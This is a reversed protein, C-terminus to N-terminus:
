FGPAQTPPASMGSHREQPSRFGIVRGGKNTMLEWAITEFEHIMPHRRDSYMSCSSVRGTIERGHGVNCHTRDRGRETFRQAARCTGCLDAQDSPTGGYVKNAM